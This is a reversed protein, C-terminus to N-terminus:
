QDMFDQADLYEEDINAVVEDGPDTEINFQNLEPVQVNDDGEQDDDDSAEDVIINDNEDKDIVAPEFM